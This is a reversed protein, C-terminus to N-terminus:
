SGECGPIPRACQAAGFRHLLSAVLATGHLDRTHRILRHLDTSAGAGAEAIQRTVALAEDAEDLSLTDWRLHLAHALEESSIQPNDALFAALEPVVSM